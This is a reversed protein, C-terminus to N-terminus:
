LTKSGEIARHMQNQEAIIATLKEEFDYFKSLLKYEQQPMFCHGKDLMHEKVARPSKFTKFCHLCTMNQNVQEALTSLLGPM